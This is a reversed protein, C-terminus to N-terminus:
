AIDHKTSYEAALKTIIKASEAISTEEGYLHLDFDKIARLMEFAEKDRPGGRRIVIPFDFKKGLDKEAKRLGEMLGSLTEYIDTFNAIAGVVWLGALGERSMVVKALKEVKEKPPNGSYETYNAPKGGAVLLADLATLSGGGGSAM